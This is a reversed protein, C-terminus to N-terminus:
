ATALEEKKEEEGYGLISKPLDLDDSDDSAKSQKKGDSNKNSANRDYLAQGRGLIDQAQKSDVDFYEAYLAPDSFANIIRQYHEAHQLYNEAMIIDGSSAADKALALYKETVQWATGRIRVDPGNSDFVQMRSPGNNGSRGRSRNKRRSNNQRM